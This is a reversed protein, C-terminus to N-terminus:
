EAAAQKNMETAVVQHEPAIAAAPNLTTPATETQLVAQAHSTPELAQPPAVSAQQPVLPAQEKDFAITRIPWPIVIGHQDFKQKIRHMVESRIKIFGARSECWAKVKLTIASDGFEVVLVSPGPQALVKPTEKAAEICLTVAQRLDTRYDVGVVFDFRRFPNSTLSVVQDTFLQANPVVIKTGDFSQLITARSQIEIIKGMTGGVKIFDGITFQRAMLVMIGAIFNMILDKLAFGLGFAVAAIISTIDIGAVKLSATIGITLVAAYTARGALIPIEKHEEEIGKEIIKNEVTSRAFRAIIFTLILLVGASIWLPLTTLFQNFLNGLEGQTENAINAGTNASVQGLFLNM